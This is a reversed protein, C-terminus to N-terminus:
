IICNRTYLPWNPIDNSGAPEPFAANVGKERMERERERGRESAKM